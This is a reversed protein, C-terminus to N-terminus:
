KGCFKVSNAEIQIRKSLAGGETLIDAFNRYQFIRGCSLHIFAVDDKSWGAQIDGVKDAIMVLDTERRPRSPSEIYVRYADSATADKAVKAIVIKATRSQNSSESVTVEADPEGAQVCGQLLLVSLLVARM